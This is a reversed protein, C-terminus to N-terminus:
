TDLDASDKEKHREIAESVDPSSSLITRIAQYLRRLFERGSGSINGRTKVDLIVSVVADRGQQLV